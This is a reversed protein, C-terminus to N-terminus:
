LILMHKYATKFNTYNNNNFMNSTNANDPSKTQRTPTTLIKMVQPSLLFQQTKTQQPLPPSWYWTPVIIFKNDTIKPILFANQIIIRKFLVDVWHNKNIQFIHHSLFIWQKLLNGKFCLAIYDKGYSIRQLHKEKVHVRMQLLIFFKQPRQKGWCILGCFYQKIIYILLSNQHYSQNWYSYFVGSMALLICWILKFICTKTM